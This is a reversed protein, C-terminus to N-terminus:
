EDRLIREYFYYDGIGEGAKKNMQAAAAKALAETTYVAVVHCEEGYPEGYELIWVINMRLDREVPPGVDSTEELLEVLGSLEELDDLDYESADLIGYEYCLRFLRGITVAQDISLSVQKDDVLSCLDFFRDLQEQYDERSM